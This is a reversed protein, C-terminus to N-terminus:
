ESGEVQHSVAVGLGAYKKELAELEAKFAEFSAQDAPGKVVVKGTYQHGADSPRFM